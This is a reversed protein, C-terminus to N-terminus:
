GNKLIKIIENTSLPTVEEKDNWIAMVWLKNDGELYGIQLRQDGIAVKLSSKNLSYPIIDDSTPPFNGIKRLFNWNENIIWEQKIVNIFPNPRELVINKPIGHVDKWKFGITIHLDRKELGWAERLINIPQCNVVVFFARNNNNSASGIGMLQPLFEISEWKEFADAVKDPGYKKILGNYEMVNIVTMHYYGNDRDQQLQCYQNYDEESLHLSMEKLFPLILQKDFKIGIYNNGLVDKIYELKM